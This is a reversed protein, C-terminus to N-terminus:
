ESADGDEEDDEEEPELAPLICDDLVNGVYVCIDYQIDYVEFDEDYEPEPTLYVKDKDCHRFGVASLVLSAAELPLGRPRSPLIFYQKSDIRNQRWYRDITREFLCTRICEAVFIIDTNTMSMFAKGIESLDSRRLSQESIAKALANMEIHSMVANCVASPKQRLLEHFTSRRGVEVVAYGRAMFIHSMLQVDFHQYIYGPFNDTKLSIRGSTNKLYTLAYYLYDWEAYKMKLIFRAVIAEKRAAVVASTMQTELVASLAQIKSCTLKVKKTPRECVADMTVHQM